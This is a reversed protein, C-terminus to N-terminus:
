PDAVNANLRELADIDRNQGVPAPPATLSQSQIIWNWHSTDLKLDENNEAFELCQTRLLRDRGVSWNVVSRYILSLPLHGTKVPSGPEYEAMFRWANTTLDGQPGNRVRFEWSNHQTRSEATMGAIM